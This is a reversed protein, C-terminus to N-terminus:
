AAGGAGGGRWIWPAAASALAGVALGSLADVAYHMQCYVVGITLLVLPVLMARGLAPWARWAAVTTALTAAVHSSPFAAGVSSGGGLIAYAARAPWVARVPGVPHPFAYNPGAVPFLVFVLYCPVFALMTAFVLRRAGSWDGRAALIPGPILVLPYYALYALHFVWSWFTSPARRIWEFAPQGGFLSAEWRQVLADHALIASLGRAQNLVGIAAYLGALLVLPYFTHLARGLGRDATLRRFGVLLGVFLGHAVLLWPYGDALPGRSVIVLTVAALYGALLYDTATLAM